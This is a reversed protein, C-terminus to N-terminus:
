ENMSTLIKSLSEKMFSLVSVVNDYKMRTPGIVGISGLNRNGIRYTATVISCNKMEPHENENGIMINIECKTAKSLMQFLLEKEELITLFSRAKEIDNYEPYNFINSAGDLIVDRDESPTLSRAVADMLSNFFEKHYYMHRQMDEVLNMSIDELTRGMLKESLMNSIRNLYDGDIGDPVRIIADKLIGSDTAIVVLAAGLSIPVLQVRQIVVREFQPALVISTYNTMDSLVRATQQIVEEVEGMRRNFYRKIRAADTQSLEKVKMLQDVYLRYAKDSPIRGASTHPQALYGLDELDSMENRITASSLGMSHKKSITRSGVPVATTIYDDIIAQLIRLKREGLEM